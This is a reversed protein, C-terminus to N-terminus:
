ECKRSVDMRVNVGIARGEIEEVAVTTGDPTGM